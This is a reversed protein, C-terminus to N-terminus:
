SLRLGFVDRLSREDMGRWAVGRWAVGRWALDLPGPVPIRGIARRALMQHSRFRIPLNFDAV